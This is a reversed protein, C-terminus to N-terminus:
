YEYKWRLDIGERSDDGQTILLELNERLLYELMFLTKPRSSSIENLVAFFTRRNLYWGTKITTSSDSGSRTNDIQVVDIGLSQSALLEVRDLLVDLAMDAASPSSGSGAVVQEWSELEYFPKGFLTYSVIDQLELVPESDFRFSPDQVTGEIIYFIRVDSQAQPPEFLTRINLEPDDVPGYFTVLAEDLQFQKGLPRAYGRVGELSGFMQLDENRSKVLDVNGGLEIEMDLYQRNRIFFQRAFNVNMEMALSEYFEFPEPEEEDELQVDEVAREGFNQLNVFGSLFTLNGTLRPEEVTGTLEANLDILANYESTNAARFQNGRISLQLNGPTLNEMEVSGSARIQGPGSRMRFQQLEIRSGSFNIASTIESLTIGAPVVRLNGGELEMRGSTQLDALQGRLEVEGNLTGRLQRFMERDLFDNFIALNFNETRFNISVEDDEDPLLVEAAELDVIFPLKAEMNLVPNGAAEVVGGLEVFEEDHIYNLDFGARDINIGSFVGNQILLEGTLEPNGAIGSLDGRMSVRGATEEIEFDPVFSLWYTLDSDMLEFYGSVDLDFFQDDFTAPDGPLFPVQLQSDFLTNGNHNGDFALQLWEDEINISFNFRDMVGNGSEINDLVGDASITLEETNNRFSAEASLYGEILPEELMLSQIAGMNLNEARFGLEQVEASAEPIWLSLFSQDSADRMTLTDMRATESEFTFDFDFPQDLMLTRFETTFELATTRLNVMEPTVQYNGEHHLTCVDEDFIEFVFDGTTMDEGQVLRTSFTIDQVGIGNVLPSEIQIEADAELDDLLRVTANGTIADSSFLTDVYVNQLEAEGNFELYGMGSRNLSGTVVGESELRDLEFLPALPQLDKLAASFNLRNDLNEFETLHQLLSFEADAIPSELIANEVTLFQDAIRFDARLTEISERNVMSSDLEATAQLELNEPDFGRGSGSLTGNLYTPFNELGSLEALNFEQMVANFIYDPDEQWNNVNVQATFNSRDLRGNLNGSVRQQNINGRFTLGSFAQDGVRSEELVLSAIARFRESEIGMGSFSSKINLSTELEPDELWVALNMRDSAVSGSWVPSDGWIQQASLGTNVVQDLRRFQAEIQVEDGLLAYESQFRDIQYQDYQLGGFNFEGAWESEEIRDPHITGSGSISLFDLDPLDELGTLLTTNLNQVEVNLHTLSLEPELSLGASIDFREMGNATAALSFRLAEMTGEAGIEMQLNQRLPLDDIYAAIDRWDLPDMRLSASVEDPLRYDSEANLMSRGSNILLSELTIREHDGEASMAFQINEPLRAEELSFELSNLKGYYGRDSVGGSAVLSMERINVFGDPLLHDSRVDMNVSYLELNNVAWRLPDDTEEEDDFPPLLEMVNWVSDRNQTIFVQVGSATVQDVTHTQRILDMLRYSIQLSDIEAVQEMRDDRLDIGYITFGHLLDGRISAIELSGNIQKDVQNEVTTRLYDFVLDSKLAFRTGFVLVLIVAISIIWKLWKRKPKIHEKKEESM